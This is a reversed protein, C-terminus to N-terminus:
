LTSIKTMNYGLQLHHKTEFNIECLINGSVVLPSSFILVTLSSFRNEPSVTFTIKKKIYSAM